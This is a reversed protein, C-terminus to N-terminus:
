HDRSWRYRCTSVCEKGVRREESRVQVGMIRGELRAAKRAARRLHRSQPPTDSAAAGRISTAPDPKLRAGLIPDLWRLAAMVFYAPKSTDNSSVAIQM